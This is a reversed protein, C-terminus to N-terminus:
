QPKTTMLKLGVGIFVVGAAKNLIANFIKSDRLNKTALTTGDSVFAYWGILILLSFTTGLILFPLSTYSNDASVFQPLFSLYLSISKPNSINTLVGKM